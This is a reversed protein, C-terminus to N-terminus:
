HVCIFAAKGRECEEEQEDDECCEIEHGLDSVRSVPLRESGRKDPEDAASEEQNM